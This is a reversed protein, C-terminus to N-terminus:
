FSPLALLQGSAMSGYPGWLSWTVQSALVQWIQESCCLIFQFLLSMREANRGRHEQPGTKDSPRTDFDLNLMKFM